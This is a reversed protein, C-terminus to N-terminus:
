EGVGYFEGLTVRELSLRETLLAVFEASYNGRNVLNNFTIHENGSSERGHVLRYFPKMGGSEDRLRQIYSRAAESGKYNVLTKKPM